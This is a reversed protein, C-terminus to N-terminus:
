IFEEEEEYPNAELLMEINRLAQVAAPMQHGQVSMLLQKYYRRMDANGMIRRQLTKVYNVSHGISQAVGKLGGGGVIAWPPVVGLAVATTLISMPAKRKILLEAFKNKAFSNDKYLKYFDAAARDAKHWEPFRKYISQLADDVGEVASGMLRAKDKLAFTSKKRSYGIDGIAKMLQKRVGVAEQVSLPSEVVKGLAKSSGKRGVQEWLDKYVRSLASKSKSQIDPSKLLNEFSDLVNRTEQRSLFASPELNKATAYLEDSMSKMTQAGKIGSVLGQASAGLLGLVLEGGKGLELNRALTTGAAMGLGGLLSKYLGGIPVTAFDAAYHFADEVLGSSPAELDLNGQAVPMEGGAVFQNAIRQKGEPTAKKGSIMEFLSGTSQASKALGTLAQKAIGPREREPHEEARSFWTEFDPFSTM